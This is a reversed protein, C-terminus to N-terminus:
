SYHETIMGATLASEQDNTVVFEPVDFALCYKWDALLKVTRDAKQVDFRGTNETHSPRVRNQAPTAWIKTSGTMSSLGYVSIETKDIKKLDAMQAYQQNYKARRGDVYRDVLNKDMFLYDLKDRLERQIGQVFTEIQTCFTAPDTSLAGTNIVQVRNKAQLKMLVVRIGDMAANAKTAGTNLVQRSFTAATVVPNAAVEETKQFGYYAVKKEFDEKSQPILLESIFWKLIPWKARDPEELEALFGLWSQRFRDPTFSQDVKFEGLRYEVPKFTTAGKDTFPISFAQLVEDITAYSSRYVDGENPIKRFLAATEEAAFLKTKISKDNQGGPIYAKGFETIVASIDITAM